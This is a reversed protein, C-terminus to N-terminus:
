IFYTIDISFHELVLVKVHRFITKIGYILKLFFNMQIKKVIIRRNLIILIMLNGLRM